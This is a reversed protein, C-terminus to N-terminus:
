RARLDECCPKANPDKFIFENWFENMLKGDQSDGITDMLSLAQKWIGFVSFLPIQPRIKLNM